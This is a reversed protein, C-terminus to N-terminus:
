WPDHVLYPDESPFIQHGRYIGMTIPRHPSLADNMIHYSATM